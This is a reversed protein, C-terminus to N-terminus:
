AIAQEPLPKQLRVLGALIQEDIAPDIARIAPILRAVCDVVVLLAGYLPEAKSREFTQFPYRRGFLTPDVSRLAAVASNLSTDIRAALEAPTQGPARGHRAIESLRDLARCVSRFQAELGAKRADEPPMAAFSSHLLGIRRRLDVDIKQIMWEVPPTHRMRENKGWTELLPKPAAREPVENAVIGSM